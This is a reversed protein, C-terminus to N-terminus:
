LFMSQIGGNDPADPEDLTISLRAPRQGTLVEYADRNWRADSMAHHSLVPQPPLEVDPHAEILQMLEHTWMPVGSPLDPMAGFVQAMVVHDYAGYYAWLELDPTSTLFAQMYQGIAEMSRVHPYDPHERDWEAIFNPGSIDNRIPLSPVVNLLLWPSRLVSSLCEENILYLERGDEAVFGISVLQIPLERGRENFEADYFVRM